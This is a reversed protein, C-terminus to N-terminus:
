KKNRALPAKFELVEPKDPKDYDDIVVCSSIKKDRLRELDTIHGILRRTVAKADRIDSKLRVADIPMSMVCLVSTSLSVATIKCELIAPGDELTLESTIIIHAGTSDIVYNNVLVGKDATLSMGTITKGEADIVIGYNGNYLSFTSLQPDKAFPLNSWLCVPVDGFPTTPTMGTYDGNWKAAYGYLTDDLQPKHFRIRYRIILTGVSVDSEVGCRIDTMLYFRGASSTVPDVTPNTFLKKLRINNKDNWSWTQKDWLKVSRVSDAHAHAIELNRTSISTTRLDDTTDYDFFGTLVGPTTSPQGGIFTVTFDVIEWFEYLAAIKALRTTKMTFPNINIDTVIAGVKDNSVRLVVQEAWDSGTVITDGNYNSNMNLPTTALNNKYAMAIGQKSRGRKQALGSKKLVNLIAPYSKKSKSAM